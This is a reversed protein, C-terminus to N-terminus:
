LNFEIHDKLIKANLREIIRYAFLARLLTASNYERMDIVNDARIVTFSGSNAYEDYHNSQWVTM